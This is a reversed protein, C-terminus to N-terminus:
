AGGAAQPGVGPDARFITFWLSWAGDLTATSEVASGARDAAVTPTSAEKATWEISLNPFGRGREEVVWLCRAARSKLTGYIRLM